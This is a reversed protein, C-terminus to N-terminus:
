KFRETIKLGIEALHYIFEANPAEDIDNMMVKFYIKETETTSLLLFIEAAQKFRSKAKALQKEKRNNLWNFRYKESNILKYYERKNAPKINTDHKFARNLFNICCLAQAEKSINEM